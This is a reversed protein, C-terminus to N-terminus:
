SLIRIQLNQRGWSIAQSNSPFHVDIINGVIAGGTDGAIAIGYGPVEVMSGLPIVSPDVAICMPNKSLDIGMATTGNLAYATAQVSLTQGGTSPLVATNVNNNGNTSNDASTAGNSSATSSTASPAQNQAAKEQAAKADAVSKALAEDHAKQEAAAKAQMESLLQQNSSIKTKLSSINGQLSVVQAQYDQQEQVLKTENEELSAKMNQLAKEKEVLAKVQNAEASMVVSLNTLRMVLDSLNKSSTVVDIVSLTVGGSAQMARMQNAVNEKLHAVDIQAQTIGSELESVKTKTQNVQDQAAQAKSYIANAQILEGNLEAQFSQIQQNVEAQSTDAAVQSAGLLQGSGIPFASLILLSLGALMGVQKMKRSLLNKM